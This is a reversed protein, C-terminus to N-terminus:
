NRLDIMVRGWFSVSCTGDQPVWAAGSGFGDWGDMAAVAMGPPGRGPGTAAQGAM